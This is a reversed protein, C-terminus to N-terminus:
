LSDQIRSLFKLPLESSSARQQGLKEGVAMREKLFFFKKEKKIKRFIILLDRWGSNKLM